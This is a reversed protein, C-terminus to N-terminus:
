AQGTTVARYNALATRTEATLDEPAFEFTAGDGNLCWDAFRALVDAEKEIAQRWKIANMMQREHESRKMMGEHYLQHEEITMAEGGEIEESRLISIAAKVEAEESPTFAKARRGVIDELEAVARRKARRTLESM